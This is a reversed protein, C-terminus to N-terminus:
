GHNRVVGAGSKPRGRARGRISFANLMDWLRVWHNASLATAPCQGINVLKPRIGALFPGIDGISLLMQRPDVVHQEASAVGCRVDAWVGKPSLRQYCCSAGAEGVFAVRSVDTDKGGM